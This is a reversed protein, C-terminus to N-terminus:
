VNNSFAGYSKHITCKKLTAHKLRTSAFLYIIPFIINTFKGLCDFIIFINKLIKSVWKIKLYKQM